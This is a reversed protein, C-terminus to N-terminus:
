TTSASARGEPVLLEASSIGVLEGAHHVFAGYPVDIGAL